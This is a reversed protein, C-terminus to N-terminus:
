VERFANSAEFEIKFALSEWYPIFLSQLAYIALALPLLSRTLTLRNNLAIFPLLSLYWLFYQATYVKNFAVFSWTQLVMAFFLDHYFLLGAVVVLTWQPLFLLLSILSSQQGQDFLQYILYFYVSYNHRNDKRIFHYIWAENLYEDGYLVYSIVNLGMFSSASVVSFVLRNKTFFNTTIKQFLSLNRNLVAARDMDIFLYFPISYIIPYIKFHVSLGYVAGAIM